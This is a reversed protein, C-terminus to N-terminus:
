GPAPPDSRRAAPDADAAGAAPQGTVGRTVDAYLLVIVAGVLWGALVDVPFHVGLWVRSVGVALVIVVVAATVGIKAARPLRSRWILVTLVGYATMSLTAHGSPFSFGREEVIPELIEPRDRGVVEKIIEVGLATLGIVAAGIVGHRWPGIAAGIVLCAIAIITVAATSGLETIPDLIALGGTPGGSQIFELVAHDFADTVDITVLFALLAVLLIGIAALIPTRAPM